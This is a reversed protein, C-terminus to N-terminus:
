ALVLWIMPANGSTANTSTTFPWGAPATTPLPGYTGGNYCYITKYRSITGSWGFPTESMGPASRLAIAGSAIIAGIYWGPMLKIPTISATVATATAGSMDGSDVILSGPTGDPLMNYLGIRFTSGAVATVIDAMLGTIVGSVGVYVPVYVTRGAALGENSLGSVNTVPLNSYRKSYQGANYINPINVGLLSADGAAEILYSGSLSPLASGTINLTTGDFTELVKSRVLTTADSLYGFESSVPTGDTNLVTYQFPRNIGYRANFTPLGTIASLSIPGTGASAVTGNQKHWNGLM